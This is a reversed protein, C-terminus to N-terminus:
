PVFTLTPLSGSQCQVRGKKKRELDGVLDKKTEANIRKAKTEPSLPLTSSLLSVSSPTTPRISKLVWSAATIHQYM